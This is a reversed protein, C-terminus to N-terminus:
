LDSKLPLRTRRIRKKEIVVILHPLEEPAIMEFTRKLREFSERESYNGGRFLVLGPAEAKSHALLRPYDLDATVVVRHERRARELIVDDSAFALGSETAHVADHNQQRLWGAIAPSLPM